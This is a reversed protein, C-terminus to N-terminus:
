FFFWTFSITSDRWFLDNLDNLISGDEFMAQGFVCILSRGGPPGELVLKRLPRVHNRCRHFRGWDRGGAHCSLPGDRPIRSTNKWSRMTSSNVAWSCPFCVSAQTFSFGLAAVTMCRSISFRALAKELDWSLAVLIFSAGM